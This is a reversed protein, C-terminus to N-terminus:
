AAKMVSDSDIYKGMRQQSAKAAEELSPKMTEVFAYLFAEYITMGSSNLALPNQVGFVVDSAGKYFIQDFRKRLKNNVDRVAKAEREFRKDASDGSSNIAVKSMKLSNLDRKTDELSKYVRDIIGIDNINLKLIRNPDGNISYERIGDDYSINFNEM